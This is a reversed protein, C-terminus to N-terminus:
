NVFAETCVHMIYNVALSGFKLENDHETVEFDKNLYNTEAQFGM